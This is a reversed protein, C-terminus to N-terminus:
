GNSMREKEKRRKWWGKTDLEEGKEGKSMKKKPELSLQFKVEEACLHLFLLPKYKVRKRM